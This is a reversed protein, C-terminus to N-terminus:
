EDCEGKKPGPKWTPNAERLLQEVYRSQNGIHRLRLIMFKPLYFTVKVKNKFEEGYIGRAM